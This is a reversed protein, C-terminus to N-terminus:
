QRVDLCVIEKEDRLYLLGSALSPAQRTPGTVQQRGIEEYAKPSARVVVLEGTMTSFFLKGDAAIGNSKGFRAQQWLRGGSAADICTLHTVPGASGINDLGYLKGDLLLPTQWECRLVSQPGQSQWVEEAVFKQGDPKLRLLACGHNEGSSIFVKGDVAIPTAINCDYDTEYPYRWLMAGSEPVLGVASGGTFVVVQRRGGLDLLVPSSYGPPDDGAKWALEGTKLRCAVVCAQPAGATVIVLDGVLLPSSALGYDAVKGGLESVVNKSWAIKGDSLGLAALTGEGTFVIVVDGSITPTARPGNGQQNKYEDALPTQWQLQGSKADLAIAWQKGEKQVLTVLRGRSIALGSMGVGGSARWVEKPGGNPWKDLLGQEGSVGTRHPGLFQPWDDGFVFNGLAFFSCILGCLLIQQMRAAWDIM